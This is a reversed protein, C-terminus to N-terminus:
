AKKFMIKFPTKSLALRRVGNDDLYIGIDKCIVKCFKCVSPCYSLKYDYDFKEIKFWNSLTVPGPNGESGGTTVFYQRSEKDFFDLKWVTTEDCTTGTDSKINLDTSVRITQKKPNVPLFTVAAGNRDEFEEQIVDLPCYSYPSPRRPGLTLGGGRAGAAPLIYYDVGSILNKGTIDHVEEPACQSSVVFALVLLPFLTALSSSYTAM